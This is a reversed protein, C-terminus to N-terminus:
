KMKPFVCVQNEYGEDSKLSVGKVLINKSICRIRAILSELLLTKEYIWKTRLKLNLTM